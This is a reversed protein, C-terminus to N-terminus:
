WRNLYRGPVQEAGSIMSKVKQIPIAIHDYKDYFKINVMSGAYHRVNQETYVKGLTMAPLPLQFFM